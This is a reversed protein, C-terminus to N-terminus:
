SQTPYSQEITRIMRFLVENVPTPIGHKQGLQIVTQAFLEVETKRGAEVDSCPTQQRTLPHRHNQM